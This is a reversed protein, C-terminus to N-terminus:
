LLSLIKKARQLSRKPGNTRLFKKIQKKLEKIQKKDRTKDGQIKTSGEMFGESFYWTKFWRAGALFLAFGKRTAPAPVGLDIEKGTEESIDYEISVHGVEPLIEFMRKLIPLHIRGYTRIEFWPKYYKGRGAFYLGSIIRKGKLFIEFHREESYRGKKVKIKTREFDVEMNNFYKELFRKIKGMIQHIHPYIFILQHSGGTM